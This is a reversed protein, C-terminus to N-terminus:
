IHATMTPTEELFPFRYATAATGFTAQYVDEGGGGKKLGALRDAPTLAALHPHTNSHMGTSHGERVVRRPLDPFQAVNNGVSFFTATVCQDALAELVRPTTEPRPGDDFTLVIEGM